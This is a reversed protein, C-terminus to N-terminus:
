RGWALRPRAAGDQEESLEAAAEVPPLAQASPASRPVVRRFQPVFADWEALIELARASGTLEAHRAVVARLWGEDDAPVEPDLVVLEPNYRRTLLNEPDLVFVTGGSM